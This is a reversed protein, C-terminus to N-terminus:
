PNGLLHPRVISRGLIGRLLSESCPSLFSHGFFDPPTVTTLSKVRCFGGGDIGLVPPGCGLVVFVHDFFIIPEFPV